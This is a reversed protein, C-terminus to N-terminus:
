WPINMRELSLPKRKTQGRYQSWKSGASVASEYAYRHNQRPMTNREHTAFRARETAM